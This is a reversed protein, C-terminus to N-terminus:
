GAGRARTLGSLFNRALRYVGPRKSERPGAVNLRNISHQGLWARVGSFQSEWADDGLAVVFYPKGERLAIRQTELTGDALEGLNLILTGDSDIVNRRTRQRYNESETEILRYREPIPGDEAKRGKPCWGGHAYNEAIAFDLAARDVGTQGGSIVSKCPLFPANM